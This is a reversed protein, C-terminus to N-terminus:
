DHTGAAIDIYQAVEKIWGCWYLHGREARQRVEALGGLWLAGSGCLETELAGDFTFTSIACLPTRATMQFRM